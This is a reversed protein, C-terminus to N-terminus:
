WTELQATMGGDVYLQTGTIFSAEDSALFAVARAVDEPTGIRKVVQRSEVLRQQAAPDDYSDFIRQVNPTLIWGPAISNVRITPGHDIALNRTMQTLGGKSAAYPLVGNVAAFSHVSSINIIVGRQRNNMHPICYKSFLFASRLNTAIALDFDAASAEIATKYVGAGANNVLIDIRGWRAMAADVTAVIDEERTVDCHAFAVDGGDARMAGAASRGIEDLDAMLVKAGEGVLVKAIGLGIGMSAGSVIAVRDQLKM